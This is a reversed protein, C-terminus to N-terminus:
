SSKGTMKKYENMEIRTLECVHDTKRVNLVNKLSWIYDEMSIEFGNDVACIDLGTFRFRDKEVKSVTLTKEVGVIIVKILEDTGALSLNDVHTLVAGQLEGVRHKFYFM